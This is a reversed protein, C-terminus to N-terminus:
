NNEALWKEEMKIEEHLMSIGEVVHRNTLGKLEGNLAKAVTVIHASFEAAAEYNDFVNEGKSFQYAMMRDQGIENMLELHKGYLVMFGEAINEDITEEKKFLGFM